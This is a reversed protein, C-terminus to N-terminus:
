GRRKRSIHGFVAFYAIKYNQMPTDIEAREIIQKITNHFQESLTTHKTKQKKINNRGIM